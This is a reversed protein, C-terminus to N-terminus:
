YVKDMITHREEHYTEEDQGRRWYPIAYLAKKTLQYDTILKDRCAVVSSNEGAIFASLSSTGLPPALQGIEEVLQPTKRGKERQFWKVSVGKPHILSHEDELSDVEILVHGQADDDLTELIASIAPVATLDGAIIHWDAPALLPDPGGPGAVGIKSGPVANVAWGSAPSNDGHVVFDIDLENVDARYDRVTYARTVPKDKPWVIREGDLTPLVLTGTSRNAFFLKIHAGKKDTPFGKLTEGTVTVRLLNPSIQQKRVCELLRPPVRQPKRNDSM